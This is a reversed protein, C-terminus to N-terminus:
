IIKDLLKKLDNCLKQHAQIGKLISEWGWAAVRQKIVIVGCPVLM